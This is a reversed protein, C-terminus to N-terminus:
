TTLVTQLGRLEIDFTVHFAGLDAGASISEACILVLGQVSREVVDVANSANTNVNFWPLRRTLPVNYTWNQWANFTKMNRYGKVAALNTATAFAGINSIQEPNDSYAIYMPSGADAVGPAVHPIWHVQMNLYRFDSYRATLAALDLAASQQLSTGIAANSNSCDVFLLQAASNLLTTMNPTFETGHLVTGDFSLRPRPVNRKVMMTPPQKKRSTRTNSNKTKNNNRAMKIQSSFNM